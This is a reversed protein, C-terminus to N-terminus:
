HKKRYIWIALIVVAALVFLIIYFTVNDLTKANSIDDDGDDLSSVNNNQQSGNGSNSGSGLGSGGNSGSSDGSQGDSPNADAYIAYPSFHEFMVKLFTGDDGEPYAMQQRTSELLEDENESIFLLNAKTESWDEGLQIYVPVSEDLQKYENGDPDTVGMAFIWLKENDARNKYAEDIDNYYKEWERYDYYRNIWKVWFRSGKRFTGKTNDLGYWASTGESEEKIWIIGNGTVLGSTMGNSDVFDTINAVEVPEGWTSCDVFLGKGRFTGTIGNIGNDGPSEAVSAFGVSVLFDEDDHNTEQNPNQNSENYSGLYGLNYVANRTDGDITKMMSLKTYNSPTFPETRVFQCGKGGNASISDSHVHLNPSFNYVYGDDKICGVVGGSVGGNGGAGSKASGFKENIEDGFKYYWPGSPMRSIGGDASVNELITVESNRSIEVPGLVLGILGGSNGGAGGNAAGTGSSGGSTGGIGGNASVKGQNKCDENFEIKCMSQGIFGGANGGVGGDGTSGGADKPSGGTDTEGLENVYSVNTSYISGKNRCAEKFKVTKDASGNASGIFGGANGGQGGSSSFINNVDSVDSSSGGNSVIKGENSCEIINVNGNSEGILSGVDSGNGGYNNIKKESDITKYNSGYMNSHGGGSSGGSSVMNGKNTLNNFEVESNEDTKAIFGVCGANGGNGGGSTGIEEYNTEALIVFKTTNGSRSIEKNIKVVYEYKDNEINICEFNTESWNSSVNILLRRLRADDEGYQYGGEPGTVTPNNKVYAKAKEYDDNENKGFIYFKYKQMKPSEIIPYKSYISTPTGLSPKASGKIELDEFKVSAPFVKLVLPEPLKNSDLTKSFNFNCAVDKPNLYNLGEVSGDEFVFSRNKSNKYDSSATNSSSNKLGSSGTSTLQANNEINSITCKGKAELIIGVDGAPGGNNNVVDNIAPEGKSSLICGSDFYINKITANEICGFIGASEGNDRESKFNKIKWYDGDFTGKFPHEKTGIANIGKYGFNIVKTVKLFKGEYSELGNNVNNSLFKMDSASKIFYPSDETGNGELSESASEDWYGYSYGSEDKWSISGEATTNFNVPIGGIIIFGAFLASLFKKIKKTSIKARNLIMNNKYCM